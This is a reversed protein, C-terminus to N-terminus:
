KSAVRSKQEPCQGWVCELPKDYTVTSTEMEDIQYLETRFGLGRGCGSLVVVALWMPVVMLLGWMIGRM